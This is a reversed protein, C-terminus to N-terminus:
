KAAAAIDAQRQNFYEVTKDVEAAVEKVVSTDGFRAAWAALLPTRDADIIQVGFIRHLGEFWYLCSGLALDLYGISDGGFFAAKGKSCEAFAEELHEIAAFTEKVKEAREEETTARLVGLWAPCLKEDVYMAMFRATTRMYPDAPLISPGVFAEDVYEVIVLSECIPKGNHILVPVKKYVPNSSLLLDSKNNLDEEVYEYTLGKFSLALKVRQAFPSASMGLLKLEDGGGAM